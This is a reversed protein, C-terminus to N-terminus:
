RSRLIEKSINLMIAAIHSLAASVKSGKYPSLFPM